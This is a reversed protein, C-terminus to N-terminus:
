TVCNLVIQVFALYKVEFFNSAGIWYAYVGTISDALANLLLQTESDKIEALYANSYLDNCYEQAEHNSFMEVNGFHFCGHDGM